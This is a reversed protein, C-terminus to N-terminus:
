AVEELGFRVRTAKLSADLSSRTLQNEWIAVTSGTKQERFYHLMGDRTGPTQVGCYEVGAEEALSKATQNTTM